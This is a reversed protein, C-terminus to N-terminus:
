RHFKRALPEGDPWDVNKDNLRQQGVIGTYGTGSITVCRLDDAGIAEAAAQLVPEPDVHGPQFQGSATPFGAPLTGALVLLIVPVSLVFRQTAM